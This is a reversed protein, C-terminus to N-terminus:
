WLTTPNVAVSARKRVPQEDPSGPGVPDPPGEDVTPGVIPGLSEGVLGLVPRSELM